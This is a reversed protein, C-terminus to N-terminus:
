KNLMEHELHKGGLNMTPTIFPITRGKMLVNWYIWKFGLKGMHNTLSEEMLSMPGVGNFPFTGDVPEHDYNFDILIAKHNGTEVFCNAHGDFKAQLPEGKIYHLINETLIESEFHAVSGAKSAPLSTADGIAFINEKITTQLSFKDTPVYNLEDGFGSRGVFAAGKNLPVTVLLDFNVVQGGYDHLSKTENDIHEVYFDTVLKINKEEILHGLKQAAFPKTFAGGLPTVYTIEVEDRMGKHRFFDDALFAFELPAVPCKIPLETIHIVLKGGEWSALKDHLAKAGDFSYFDFIDKYWLKDKMGPVEEPAISCGSAIILIDYHLASGDSLYVLDKESDVRDITNQILQVDHPMFKKIPKQIEHEDYIGFPLFLFGPQYYHIEAEDVITINWENRSLKGRLHNAMMTGASGAGLILINRNTM